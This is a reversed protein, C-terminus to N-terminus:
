LSSHPRACHGKNQIHIMIKAVHCPVVGFASDFLEHEQLM